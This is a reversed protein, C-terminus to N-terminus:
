SLTTAMLFYCFFSFYTSVQSYTRCVTGYSQEVYGRTIFPLIPDPDPLIPDPDPLNTIMTIMMTIMITIMTPLTLPSTSHHPLSPHSDHHPTLCPPFTPERLLMIIFEVCFTLELTNFERFM